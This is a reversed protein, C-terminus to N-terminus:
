PCLRLQRGIVRGVGIRIEDLNAVVEGFGGEADSGHRSTATMMVTPCFFFSAFLFVSFTGLMVPVATTLSRQKMGFYGIGWDYRFM